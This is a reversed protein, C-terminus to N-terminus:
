APAAASWWSENEVAFSDGPQLDHYFFEENKGFSKPDDVQLSLSGSTFTSKVHTSAGSKGKILKGQFFTTGGRTLTKAYEHILPSVITDSGSTEEAIGKGLVCTEDLVVRSGNSGDTREVRKIRYTSAHSYRPNTFVIAKGNLSGDVPLTETTTLIGAESDLTSIRGKWGNVPSKVDLGKGSFSRGGSMALTLPQGDKIRLHAFRAAITYGGVERPEADGASYVLDSRGDKLHIIAAVAPFETGANKVELREVNEVIPSGQHAEVAAIFESHLDNGKRRALVFRAKPVAKTVGPGVATVVEGNPDAPMNLRMHTGSTDIAWDASWAKGAPSRQPQMLFGYGNGPPANWYFKGPYGEIDGDVLIKDGWAIDPGALSGKEPKGLDLGSFKVQDGLGHFSYDHRRGGGVRFLDLLYTHATDPDSLLALTRDYVRVKGQVYSGPSSAEAVKATPLNAFLSLSGGTGVTELEDGGQSQEDVVVTNHGVTQKALGVYVHASGLVYGLHYTLNYGGAYYNFSLDDYHGHNLTPGFRLFAAHADPANGARLFALGKQGLFDSQTIRSALEPKANDPSTPVDTGHCLIWFQDFCTSRAKDINGDAMWTLLQALQHREEDTSAAAYLHEVCTYDSRDFPRDTEVFQKVLPSWDGYVAPVGTVNTKLNHLRMFDAFKPHKYLNFGNPYVPGRYNLLPEAFTIYLHRAHDAYGSASEYYTGDRGLNNELMSLIGFPGLVPWRVWDDIGLCVGVALVGRLYDAEGNHLAGKLSQKYCYQAGDKLLNEEINKRRSMGPRVSPQDLASSNFLLDYHDVYYVLVRAVQYQPRNFRGTNTEEPYDWSGVNCTPYVNAIADLLLAAKRAYAEDGTIFYAYCLSNLGKFTLREMVWANYSGVFYHVRGDKGQYGTGSDPHEKDPLRHGNSCLVHGPDDFSARAADWIGLSGGCIPCGAFGYGYCAGPGPVQKVIWEDSKAMWWAAESTIGDAAKRAWEHRAINGRAVQASASTVNVTPHAVPNM